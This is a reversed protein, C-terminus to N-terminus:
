LHKKGIISTGVINLNFKENIKKLTDIVIKHQTHRSTLFYITINKNEKKLIHTLAPSLAAATKGLGTPAHAILNQKNKVCFDIKKILQDQITRIESHPFLLTEIKELDINSNKTQKYHPDNEIKPDAVFDDDYEIATPDDTDLETDNGTDKDTDMVNSFFPNKIFKILLSLVMM